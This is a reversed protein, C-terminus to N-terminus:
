KRKYFFNFRRYDGNEEGEISAHLSDDSKFEYIIRQPFDHQKNEFVAKNNQDSIMVFNVWDSDNQNNIKARYLWRGGIKLIALEEIFVTDKNVLEFGIGKVDSDGDAIWEEVHQNQESSDEWRGILLNQDFETSESTIVNPDEKCSVISLSALILLVIYFARFM